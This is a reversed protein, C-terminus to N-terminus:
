DAENEKLNKDLFRYYMKKVSDVSNYGGIEFAIQQWSLCRLCKLILIQRIISDDVGAIYEMIEAKVRQCKECLKKLQDIYDVRTVARKATNDGIKNGKPMGNFAVAGVDSKNLEWEIEKKLLRIEREIYYVQELERRTM